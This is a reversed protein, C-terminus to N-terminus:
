FSQGTQSAIEKVIYVNIANSHRHTEMLFENSQNEFVNVNNILTDFLGVRPKESIYFQINQPAFDKNLECLNEFVRSEKIKGAGDSNGVRHFFIPVYRILNRDSVRENLLNASLRKLQLNEEQITPYCPNKHEKQQYIEKIRNIKQSRFRYEV